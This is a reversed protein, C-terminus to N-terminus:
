ECLVVLRCLWKGMNAYLHMMWRDRLTFSSDSTDISALQDTSCTEYGQENFQYLNENLNAFATGVLLLPQNDDDWICAGVVDNELIEFPEDLNETRCSFTSAAENDLLIVTTSGMVPHYINGTSSNRRYVILKAVYNENDDHFGRESDYHCYRWSTM